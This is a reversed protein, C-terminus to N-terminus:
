TTHLLCAIHVINCSHPAGKAAKHAAALDAKLKKEAATAAAAAAQVIFLSKSNSFSVEM